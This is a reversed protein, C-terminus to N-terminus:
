EGENRNANGSQDERFERRAKAVRRAAELTDRDYVKRSVEASHVALKARDDASAGAMGGETIAGARLDRNWLNAPLGAERRIHKAWFQGYAEHLFPRGTRDDIILPGSRRRISQLARMVLPCLKLDARLHKGTRATKSPTIEFILNEDITSWMPGIWKKGKWTYASPRPDSM